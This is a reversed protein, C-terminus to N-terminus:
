HCDFKKFTTNIESALSYTSNNVGDSLPTNPVVNLAYLCQDLLQRYKNREKILGQIQRKNATTFGIVLPGVNVTLQHEEKNEMM